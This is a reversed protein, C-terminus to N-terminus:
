EHEHRESVYQEFERFLDIFEEDVRKLISEALSINTYFAADNRYNYMERWSRWKEHSSIIGADYAHKIIKKPTPSVVEGIMYGLAQICTDFCIRFLAVSGAYETRNKPKVTKRSEILDELANRFEEFRFDEFCLEESNESVTENM